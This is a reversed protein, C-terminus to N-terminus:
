VYHNLFEASVQFSKIPSGDIWNRHSELIVAEVGAEKAQQVMPVLDLNGTGLEMSDQKLIPTMPTGKVRAGRDNIHYLKLRSGLAQMLALANVGADIAWYSDFEFNVLEPDTEEMLIQYATKGAEPKLFEINHNHYLLDIGQAKLAKGAENLRQALKHVEDASSYDFRYMGTVTVYHAGFDKAEQAAEQPKEEISNLYQHVSPVQLGSDAILQKWPLKGGNGVPMGAMRTIAKVMFSTPHIMFNCLEIGQYGADKLAKLTASAQQETGLVTGLQFQQVAKIPM